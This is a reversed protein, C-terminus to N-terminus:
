NQEFCRRRFETVFDTYWDLTEGELGTVTDLDLFDIPSGRFKYDELFGVCREIDGSTLGADIARQQIYDRCLDEQAPTIQSYFRLANAVEDMARHVAPSSFVELAAKRLASDNTPDGPTEMLTPPIDDADCHM